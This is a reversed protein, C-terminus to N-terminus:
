CSILNSPEHYKVYRLYHFHQSWDCLDYGFGDVCRGLGYEKSCRTTGM